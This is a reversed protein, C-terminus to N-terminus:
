KPFKFYTMNITITKNKGTFIIKTEGYNPPGFNGGTNNSFGYGEIPINMKNKNLIGNKDEDHFVAISYIGKPVSDFPVYMNYANVALIAGMFVPGGNAFSAYSNFIAVNINGIIKNINKVFVTLHGHLSDSVNVTDKNNKFPNPPIPMGGPMNPKNSDHTANPNFQALCISPFLFLLIIYLLAKKM